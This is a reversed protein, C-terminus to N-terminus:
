ISYPLIIFYLSLRLPTGHCSSITHTSALRLGKRVQMSSWRFCHRESRHKKHFFSKIKKNIKRCTLYVLAHTFQIKELYNWKPTLIILSNWKPTLIILSNRKPSLIILLIPPIDQSSCSSAKKCLAGVQYSASCNCRWEYTGLIRRGNYLEFPEIEFVKELLSTLM